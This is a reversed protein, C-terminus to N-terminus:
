TVTLLAPMSGPVNFVGHIIVTVIVFLFECWFPVTTLPSHMKFSHYSMTMSCCGRGPCVM